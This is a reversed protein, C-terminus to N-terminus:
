VPCPVFVEVHRPGRRWAASLADGEARIRAEVGPSVGAMGAGAEIRYTEMLTAEDAGENAQVDAGEDARLYLAADLEAVEACLRRQWGQLAARAAELDSRALRWYVYLERPTKPEGSM